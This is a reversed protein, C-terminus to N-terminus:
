EENIISNIMETSLKEEDYDDDLTFGNKIDNINNINVTDDSEKNENTAPNDSKDYELESENDSDIEEIKAVPAKEVVPAVQVIIQKRKEIKPTNVTQKLKIPQMVEEREEPITALRDLVSDIDKKSTINKQETIDMGGIIGSSVTPKVISAPIPTVDNSIENYKLVYYVVIVILIIIVIALGIVLWSYGKKPTTNKENLKEEKTKQSDIELTDTKRRPLKQTSQKNNEFLQDSSEIENSLKNTKQFGNTINPRVPLHDM